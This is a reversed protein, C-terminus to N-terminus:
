FEVDDPPAAPSAGFKQEREYVYSRNDARGMRKKQWKLRKMCEGVRIQEARTMKAPEIKLIDAFIEAMSIEDRTLTGRHIIDEYVDGLEREAQQEGFIKVHAPDTPYWVHGENYLTFAEAWLQHVDSEISTPGRLRIEGCRVPWYRRNGTSDRLYQDHNTTGAFVNQRKALIDRHGYPPRYKDQVASFFAKSASSEARNFADLEALEYGWVGRLAGYSDKDGIRIPTDSFWDGFLMSLTTSKGAGQSGEFLLVHDAKCGPQYIRAVASILWWTGALEYYTSSRLDTDDTPVNAGMYQVLWVPLRSIGDWQLGELYEQVPHYKARNGMACVAAAVDRETARLDFKQSLWLRLEIDDADTWDGSLGGDFPPATQKQLAYTFENYALVGKWGAENALITVVNELCGIPKRKDNLRLGINDRVDLLGALAPDTGPKIPVVKGDDKQPM